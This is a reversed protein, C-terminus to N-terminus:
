YIYIYIDSTVHDSDWWITVYVTIYITCPYSAVDETGGAYYLVDCSMDYWM